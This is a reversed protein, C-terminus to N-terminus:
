ELTLWSVIDQEAGQLTHKDQPASLTCCIVTKHPLSTKFYYLLASLICQAWITSLTYGGSGGGERGNGEWHILQPHWNTHQKKKQTETKLLKYQNEQLFMKPAIERCEINDLGM